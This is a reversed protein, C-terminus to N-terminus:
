LGFAAKVAAGHSKKLPEAGRVKRHLRTLHALTEATQVKMDDERCGAQCTNNSLTVIDSM